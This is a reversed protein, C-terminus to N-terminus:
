DKIGNASNESSEEVARIHAIKRELYPHAQSIKTRVFEEVHTNGTVPNREFLCYAQMPSTPVGVSLAIDELSELPTEWLPHVYEVGFRAAFEKTALMFEPTQEPYYSQSEKFGDAVLSVNKEKCFLIAETLMALKCACCVLNGYTIIDSELSRIGLEHFLYTCDRVQYSTKNPFARMIYDAKVKALDLWQEAGNYFTLMHVFWNAKLFEIAVATSDLGGSFLVTIEAQKGDNQSM